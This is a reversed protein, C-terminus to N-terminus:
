LIGYIIVGVIGMIFNYVYSCIIKRHKKESFLIAGLSTFGVLFLSCVSKIFNLQMIIDVFATTAIVVGSGVVGYNLLIFKDTFPLLFALRNKALFKEVQVLVTGYISSMGMMYCIVGGIKRLLPDSFFPIITILSTKNLVIGGGILILLLIKVRPSYRIFEVVVKWILVTSQKDLLFDLFPQYRKKAVRETTLQQMELYNRYRSSRDARELFNIDEIYQHMDLKILMDILLLFFMFVLQLCIFLSYLFSALFLATSILTLLLIYVIYIDKYKLWCLLDITLFYLIFASLVIVNRQNNKQEWFLLSFCIAVVLSQILRVGRALTVVAKYFKTNYFYHISATRIKFIPKKGVFIRIANIVGIGIALQMQNANIIGKNVAILHFIQSVGVVGFLVLLIVEYKYNLILVKTERIKNFFLYKM